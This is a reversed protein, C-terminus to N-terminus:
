SVIGSVRWDEWVRRKGVKENFIFQKRTFHGSDKASCIKTASRCTITSFHHYWRGCMCIVSCTCVKAWQQSVKLYHYVDFQRNWRCAIRSIGGKLFFACFIVIKNFLAPHDYWISCTKHNCRWESANKFALRREKCSYPCCPLWKVNCKSDEPTFHMKHNLSWTTM